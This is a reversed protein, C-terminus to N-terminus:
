RVEKAAARYAPKRSEYISQLLELLEKKTKASALLPRAGINGQAWLREAITELPTDLWICWTHEKVLELNEPDQLTGGGLSLVISIEGSAKSQSIEGSAKSPRFSMPETMELSTSFDRVLCRITDKELQRFAAEGDEAFIRAVSKGARLEVEADLDVWKCSLQAALDRAACSKGCGPMGAFTIIRM